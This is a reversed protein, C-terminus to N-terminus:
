SVKLRINNTIPLPPWPPLFSVSNRAQHITVLSTRENRQPNPIRSNSVPNSSESRGYRIAAANANIPNGNAAAASRQNLPAFSRSYHPIEEM